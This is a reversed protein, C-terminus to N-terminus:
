DVIMPEKLRDARKVLPPPPRRKNREAARKRANPRKNAAKRASHSDRTKPRPAQIQRAAERHPTGGQRTAM